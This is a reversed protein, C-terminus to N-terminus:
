EEKPILPNQARYKSTQGSIEETWKTPFYLFWGFWSTGLCRIRKCVFWFYFFVLVAQQMAQLKRVRQPIPIGFLGIAINPAILQM